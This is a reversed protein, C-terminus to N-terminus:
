RWQQAISTDLERYVVHSAACRGAQHDRLTPRRALLGQALFQQTMQHAQRELARTGAVFLYGPQAPDDWGAVLHEKRTELGIPVPPADDARKRLKRGVLRRDIPAHVAPVHGGCQREPRQVGPLDLRHDGAVRELDVYEVCVGAHGGAGAHPEPGVAPEDGGFYGADVSRKRTHIQEEGVRDAGLGSAQQRGTPWHVINGAIRDGADIHRHRHHDRAGGVEALRRVLRDIFQFSIAAKHRCQARHPDLGPQAHRELARAPPRHCGVFEGLALRDRLHADHPWWLLRAVNRYAVERRLGRMPRHCHRAAAAERRRRQDRTRDRVRNCRSQWRHIGREGLDIDPDFVGGAHQFRGDLRPKRWGTELHPLRRIPATM